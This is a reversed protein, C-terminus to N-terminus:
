CERVEGGWKAKAGGSVQSVNEQIAQLEESTITLWSKNISCGIYHILRSNRGSRSLKFNIFYKADKTHQSEFVVPFIANYKLENEIRCRSVMLNMDSYDANGSFTIEIGELILHLIERRVKDYFGIFSVGVRPLKVIFEYTNEVEENDV